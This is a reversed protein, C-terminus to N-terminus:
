EEPNHLLQQFLPSPDIEVNVDVGMKKLIQSREYIEEILKSTKDLKNKAEANSTEPKRNKM